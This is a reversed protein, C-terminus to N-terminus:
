NISRYYDEYVTYDMAIDGRFGALLILFLGVGYIIIKEQKFKYYSLYVLLFYILYYFLM